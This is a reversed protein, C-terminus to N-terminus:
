CNIDVWACIQKGHMIWLNREYMCLCMYVCMCVHMCTDVWCLRWFTGPLNAHKQTFCHLVYKSGWAHMIWLCTYVCVCMCTDVWCVWCDWSIGLLNSYKQTFCHLVYNSGWASDVFKERVHMCVHVCAYVCARIWGACEACDWSIGLLNSYKQTSSHLVYKSSWANNVFKERVHICVHVCVCM